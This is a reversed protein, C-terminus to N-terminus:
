KLYFILYNDGRKEPTHQVEDGGTPLHLTFGIGVVRIGGIIEKVNRFTVRTDKKINWRGHGMRRGGKERYERRIGPLARKVEMSCLL